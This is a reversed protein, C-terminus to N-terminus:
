PSSRASFMSAVAISRRSVIQCTGTAAPRPASGPHPPAIMTTVCYTVPRSDKPPTTAASVAVM